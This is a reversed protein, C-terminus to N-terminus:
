YPFIAYESNFYLEKFDDQLILKKMRDDWIKMLRKGKKTKAFAPYLKLQLIIKKAFNKPSIKAKALYDQIDEKDDIFVDIRDSKLQKLGNNRNSSEKFKSKVKLFKDYDYGRIWGLTL